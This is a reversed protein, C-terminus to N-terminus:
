APLSQPGNCMLEGNPSIIAITPYASIGWTRITEGSRDFLVLFPLPKGSWKDKELSAIKAKLEDLSIPGAVGNEHIAVIEFQDLHKRNEEHFKALKPLGENVCPACWYGWFYVLVWKGRLTGADFSDANATDVAMLAPAPSGYYQAMNAPLDIADLTLDHTAAEFNVVTQKDSDSSIALAYRGPPLSLVGETPGAIQIFM